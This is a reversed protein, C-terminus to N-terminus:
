VMEAAVKNYTWRCEGHVRCGKRPISGVVLTNYMHDNQSGAVWLMMRMSVCFSLLSIYLPVTNVTVLSSLTM